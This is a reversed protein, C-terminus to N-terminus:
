GEEGPWPQYRESCAHFMLFDGRHEGEEVVLGVIMDLPERFYTSGSEDNDLVPQDLMELVICPKDPAPWRRNKLGPKWGVVMGARLQHRDLKLSRYRARLVGPLDGELGDFDADLLDLSAEAAGNTLGIKALVEKSSLEKKEKRAM